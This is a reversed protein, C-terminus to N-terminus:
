NNQYFVQPGIKLTWDYPNYDVAVDTTPIYGLRKVIDLAGDKGGFDGSFWDMLKPLAVSNTTKNYSVQSNLYQRTSQALQKYVTEVEYIRVPPCSSAGCNLAFHIRWDVEDVMFPEHWDGGFPNKFYGYSYKSTGRRLVGHELKDFSVSTGAVTLIPDSFFDDRDEYLGPNQKLKYQILGNYLNIWFAMRKRDTNIQAALKQPNAQAIIQVFPKANGGNKLTQLINKSTQMYDQAPLYTSLLIACASLLIKM